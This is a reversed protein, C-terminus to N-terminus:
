KTELRAGPTASSSCKQIPPPSRALQCIMFVINASAVMKIPSERLLFICICSFVSRGDKKNTMNQYAVSRKNTFKQIIVKALSIPTSNAVQPGRATAVVKQHIRRAIQIIVSPMRSPCIYLLSFSRPSRSRKMVM